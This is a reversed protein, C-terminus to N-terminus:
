PAPADDIMRGRPNFAPSIVDLSDAYLRYSTGTLSLITHIVNATSLPRRAASVIRSLTASRDRRYAPNAYVIFPVEVHARDRGHFDGDDFVNEGHDSFYVVVTPRGRRAAMDIIRALIFDTYRISNDYQAITLAQSDTLDPRRVARKVSDVTFYDYEAPYRQRYRMHSGILHVGSIAPGPTSSLFEQLPALTLEDFRKLTADDSSTNGVFEVRDANRVLAVINNSWTGSMEQNSIWATHYDTAALVDFLSPSRLWEEAPQRDTLFTFIRNMNFATTTSSGLADQFIVISDAMARLRPTTDLPYGYVSLHGRSASEGVVIIIDADMTSGVTARYPLERKHSLLEDIRAKERRASIVAKATKGFVSLSVRGSPLGAIILIAVIVGAVSSAIAVMRFARWKVVRCGWLALGLVAVACILWPSTALRVLNSWLSPLFQSVESANTQAMVTMMKITIGMGYLNWCVGNVVCLLAYVAVVIWVVVSAWRRGRAACLLAVFVSAKLMCILLAAIMTLWGPLNIIGSGVSDAIGAASLATLLLWLRVILSHFANLPSPM